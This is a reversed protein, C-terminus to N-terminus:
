LGPAAGGEVDADRGGDGGLVGSSTSVVMAVLPSCARRARRPSRKSATVSSM